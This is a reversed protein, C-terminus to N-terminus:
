CLWKSQFRTCICIGFIGHVHVHVHLSLVSTYTCSFESPKDESVLGLGLPSDHLPNFSKKSYNQLYKLPLYCYKRVCTHYSIVAM